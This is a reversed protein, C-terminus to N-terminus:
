QFFDWVKVAFECHILLHPLSGENKCCMVCRSPSLNLSSFRSKIRDMTNTSKHATSWLSFKVKQPISGEWIQVSIDEKLFRRNLQIAELASKVSFMWTKDLRWTLVDERNTPNYSHILSALSNWEELERDFLIRRFYLDWTNGKWLDKIVIGKGM